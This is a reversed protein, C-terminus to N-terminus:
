FATQEAATNTTQREHTDTSYARWGPGATACNVFAFCMQSRNVLLMYQIIGLQKIRKKKM